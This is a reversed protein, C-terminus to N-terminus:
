RSNVALESATDDTGLDLWGVQGKNLEKEDEGVLVSGDLVYLFTNFNAPIDLMTTVGPEISVDAITM